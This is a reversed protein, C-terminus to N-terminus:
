NSGTTPMQSAAIPAVSNDARIAQADGSAPVANLAGEDINRLSAGRLVADNTPATRPISPPGLVWRVFDHTRQADALAQDYYAMDRLSPDRAPKARAALAQRVASDWPWVSATPDPRVDAPASPMIPWGFSAPNPASPTWSPPTAQPWAPP